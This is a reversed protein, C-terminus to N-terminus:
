RLAEFYRTVEDFEARIRELRAQAEDDVGWKEQSWLDDLCAAEFAQQGNLRGKLLAFALVCSGALGATHTLGTLTFDDLSDASWRVAAIAGPSIDAAIIGTVIPLFLHLENAAWNLLPTWTANQRAVLAAPTDTRHALLDTEAYKTLIGIREERNAHTHDLAVYAFRTFPMTAPIIQKGQAEWEAAVGQALKEKPVRLARGGPTEIERGDLTVAFVDDVARVAVDKYFRRPTEM